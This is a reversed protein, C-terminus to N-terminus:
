NTQYITPVHANERLFWALLILIIIQSQQNEEVKQKGQNNSPISWSNDATEVIYFADATQMPIGM